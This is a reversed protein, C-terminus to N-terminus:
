NERKYDSAFLIDSSNLIAVLIKSFFLLCRSSEIVNRSDCFYYITKLDTFVNIIKSKETIKRQKFISVPLHGLKETLRRILTYQLCRLAVAGRRFLEHVVMAM